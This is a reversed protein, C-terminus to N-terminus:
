CPSKHLETLSYFFVCLKNLEWKEWHISKNELKESVKIKHEISENERKETITGVHKNTPKLKSGAEM